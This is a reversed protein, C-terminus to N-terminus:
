AEALDGGGAFFGGEGGLVSSSSSTCSKSHACRATDLVRFVFGVQTLKTVLTSSYVDTVHAALWTKRLWAFLLACFAVRFHGVRPEIVEALSSAKSLM